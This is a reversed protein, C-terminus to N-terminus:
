FSVGSDLYEEGEQAAESPNGDESAAVVEVSEGAGTLEGACLMAGIAHLNQVATSDQWIQNVEQKVAVHSSQAEECTSVLIEVSFMKSKQTLPDEMGFM